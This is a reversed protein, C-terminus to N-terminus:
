GPSTASLKENPTKGSVAPTSFSSIRQMGKLKESDHANMQCGYTVVYYSEPKQPLSRIEDTYYQQRAKEEESVTYIQRNMLAWDEKKDNGHSRTKDM